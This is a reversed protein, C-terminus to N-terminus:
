MDDEPLDGLEDNHEGQFFLQEEETIHLRLRVNFTTGNEINSEVDISGGHLDVITKVIALGLGTGGTTTARSQEVRYFKDFIYPLEKEPILHGFNTVAISVYEGGGYHVDVRLLKGDAGYKTANNILNEFLRAILDGDADIILSNVDSHFSCELHKEEFVPYFEDIMQEMLKAIDIKSLHVALRGYSMKTLGFLEEILQQLHKAKDRAIRSYQLRVEDSLKSNSDACLLELYGLISTLPTRLDHAVNTILENKSKESAHEREILLRIDETLANLAAAMYSLEDDGLVPVKVSLDGGSIRKMAKAIDKVYASQNFQFLFFVLVFAGIGVATILLMALKQVNAPNILGDKGGIWLLGDAITDINFILIFSVLLSIVAGIVINIVIKGRFSRKMDERM